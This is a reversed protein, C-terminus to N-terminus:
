EAISLMQHIAATIVSGTQDKSIEEGTDDMGHVTNGTERAITQISKALM